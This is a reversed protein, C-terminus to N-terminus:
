KCRGKVSSFGCRELSQIQGGIFCSRLLRHTKVWSMSNQANPVGQFFLVFNKDTWIARSKNCCYRHMPELRPSHAKLPQGCIGKDPWSLFPFQIVFTASGYGHFNVRRKAVAKIFVSKANTAVSNARWKCHLTRCPWHAIFASKPSKM